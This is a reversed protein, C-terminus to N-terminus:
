FKFYFVRFIQSTLFISLPIMGAIMDKKKGPIPCANVSPLGVPLHIKINM